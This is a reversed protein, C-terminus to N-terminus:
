TRQRGPYERHALDKSVSPCLLSLKQTRGSSSASELPAQYLAISQRALTCKPKSHGYRASLRVAVLAPPSHWYLRETGNTGVSTHLRM